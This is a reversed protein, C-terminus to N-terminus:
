LFYLVLQTPYKEAMKLGNMFIDKTEKTKSLLKTKFKYALTKKFRKFNFISSINTYKFSYKM